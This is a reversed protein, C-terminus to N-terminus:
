RARAESLTQRLLRLEARVHWHPRRWPQTRNGEIGRHSAQAIAYDVLPALLVLSPRRTAAGAAILGAASLTAVAHMRRTRPDAHQRQYEEWFAEFCEQPSSAFDNARLAIRPKESTRPSSSPPSAGRSRSPEADYLAESM